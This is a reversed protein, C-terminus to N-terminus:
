KQVLKKMSSIIGTHLGEHFHLYIIADNINTLHLGFRNTWPKFDEFINQQYDRELTDLSTFLLKKINDEEDSEFFRDPRTGPSYKNFSQEPLAPLLGGKIYCISQQSAVLHGLNWIINNNFGHPIINLKETSLYKILELVHTRTKRINDIIHYM